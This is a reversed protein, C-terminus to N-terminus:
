RTVPEMLAVRNGFPDDVLVRFYGPLEHHEKSDNCGCSRWGAFRAAIM